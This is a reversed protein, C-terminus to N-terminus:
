KESILFIFISRFFYSTSLLTLFRLPDYLVAFTLVKFIPLFETLSNIDAKFFVVALTIIVSIEPLM